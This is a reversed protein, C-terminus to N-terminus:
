QKINSRIAQQRMKFMFSCVDCTLRRRDGFLKRNYVFTQSNGKETILKMFAADINPLRWAHFRAYEKPSEIARDLVAKLAVFDHKGHSSIYHRLNIFSGSPLIDDVNPAGLYIPVAGLHLAQWAKESVYDQLLINEVVVHLL